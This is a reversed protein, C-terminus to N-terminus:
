TSVLSPVTRITWTPPLFSGDGLGAHKRRWVGLPTENKLNVRDLDAGFELILYALPSENEDGMWYAILHLPCNGEQNASNPDTGVDLLLRVLPLASLVPKRNCAILLLNSDCTYSFIYIHLYFTDCFITDLM